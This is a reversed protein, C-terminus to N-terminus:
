SIQCKKVFVGGRKIKLSYKCRLNPIYTTSSSKSRQLYACCSTGGSQTKYCILDGTAIIEGRNIHKYRIDKEEDFGLHECLLKQHNWDWNEEDVRRWTSGDKIEIGGENGNELRVKPM